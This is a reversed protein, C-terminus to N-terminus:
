GKGQADNHNSDNSVIRVTAMARTGLGTDGTPNALAVTVLGTALVMSFWIRWESPILRTMCTSTSLPGM